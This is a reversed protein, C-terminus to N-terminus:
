RRRRARPCADLARAHQPRAQPSFFLAVDSASADATDSALAAGARGSGSGARLVARAKAAADPQGVLELGLCVGSALRRPPATRANTAHRTLAASIARRTRPACWGCGAGPPLARAVSLGAAQQPTLSALKANSLVVGARTVAELIAGADQVALVLAFVSRRAFRVRTLQRPPVPRQRRAGRASRLSATARPM